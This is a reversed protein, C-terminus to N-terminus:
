RKQQIEKGEKTFSYAFNNKKLRVVFGFIKVFSHLQDMSCEFAHMRTQLARTFFRFFFSLDYKYQNTCFTSPQLYTNIHLVVIIMNTKFLLPQM